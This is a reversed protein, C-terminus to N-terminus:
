ISKIKNQYSDIKNELEEIMKEDRPSQSILDTLQKQCLFIIASGIKRIQETRMECHPHITWGNFSTENAEIKSLIRGQNSM